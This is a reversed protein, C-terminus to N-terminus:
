EHGADRRSPRPNSGAGPLGAFLHKILMTAYVGRPLSFALEIKRAGRHRNDPEPRNAYAQTPFVLLDRPEERWVMGPLTNSRCQRASLQESKLWRQIEAAFRPEGGDGDPAYLPTRMARLEAALDDPLNRSGVLQGMLSDIGVQQDVPLTDELLGSVARNWLYSQYAFSQILRTRGNLKQIAGAFDGPQRLLHQLVPQYVPGRAISVCAEWDGWHRGLLEKLKVDGGKAVPSPRAILRQLAKEYRGALVDRMPFGQGHRLCGFRQDDFYNVYGNRALEPLNARIAEASNPDLGRLIIRFRNGRSQKSQIPQSARGKYTLRLGPERIDVRRGRISIWQETEGQRDKLGAFAIDGRSVKARRSILSLADQTDMKEKKLLHVYYEGAEDAPYDLLEQVKFDAPSYKLSM